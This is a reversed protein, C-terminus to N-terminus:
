PLFGLDTLGYDGGRVTAWALLDLMGSAHTWRFHRRRLPPHAMSVWQWRCYALGWDSFSSAREVATAVWGAAVAGNVLGFRLRFCAAM